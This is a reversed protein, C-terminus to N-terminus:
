VFTGYITMTSSSPKMNKSLKGYSHLSIPHAVISELTYEGMEINIMKLKREYDFFKSRAENTARNNLIFSEITTLMNISM